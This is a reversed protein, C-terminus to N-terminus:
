ARVTQGDPEAQGRPLREGGDAALGGGGRRRRSREALIEAYVVLLRDVMADLDYDEARRKAACGVRALLLEDGAVASVRASLAAADGLPVLFGDVLDTIVEDFGSGTTAVVARGLAMAELCANALSEWHSPMVVLRAAAVIPFLRAHSMVPLFHLRGSADGCRERAQEEFSRGAMGMDEGVFVAHLTPRSRLVAPLAAVWTDLGKRQELRGFYLVYELNALEAPPNGLANPPRIGTPVLAIADPDLGWQQAVRTALAASPSIVRASRRAQARELWRSAFQRRRQAWSVRNLDEILFHPTALRTVLPTEGAHSYWWAEAGWESAQVIDFPGLRRLAKGVAWARALVRPQIGPTPIRHICVSDVTEIRLRPVGPVLVHVDHGRAALARSTKETYTGIGGGEPPLGPSVMAIRLSSNTAALPPILAASEAV